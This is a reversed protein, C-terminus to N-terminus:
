LLVREIESVVRDIEQVTLNFFFPLCVVRDSISAAIPMDTKDVYPLASLSPRFYSRTEIKQQELNTVVTKRADSNEFLVPYYAYNYTTYDRIVPRKLPLNQIKEDYYEALKKRKELCEDAYKLNCLGMAANFENNKGNIGVEKFKYPGDHGFNMM